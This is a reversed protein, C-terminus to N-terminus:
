SPPASKAPRALLMEYFQDLRLTLGDLKKLHGELDKKFLPKSEAEKARTREHRSGYVHFVPDEMGVVVSLYGLYNSIESIPQHAVRRRVPLLKHIDKILQDWIKVFQHPHEGPKHKPLVSTVLENVLTLRAELSPTKYYVIASQEYPGLCEHCCKFLREELHAWEGICRGVLTYFEGYARGWRESRGEMSAMVNALVSGLPATGSGKAM